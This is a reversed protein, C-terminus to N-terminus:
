LSAKSTPFQTGPRRILTVLRRHEGISVKNRSLQIGQFLSIPYSDASIQIRVWTRHTTHILRCFPQKHLQLNGYRQEHGQSRHESLRLRNRTRGVHARLQKMVPRWLNTGMLTTRMFGSHPRLLRLRWSSSFFIELQSGESSPNEKPPPDTKSPIISTESFGIEDPSLQPTWNSTM